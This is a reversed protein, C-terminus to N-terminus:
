HLNIRLHGLFVGFLLLWRYATLKSQFIHRLIYTLM